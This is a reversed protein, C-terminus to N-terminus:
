EYKAFFQGPVTETMGFQNGMHAAFLVAGSDAFHQFYRRRQRTNLEANV